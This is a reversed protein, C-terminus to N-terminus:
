VNNMGKLTVAQDSVYSKLSIDFNSSYFKILTFVVIQANTLCTFLDCAFFFLLLTNVFNNQINTKEQLSLHPSGHQYTTLQASESISDLSKVCYITHINVKDMLDPSFM